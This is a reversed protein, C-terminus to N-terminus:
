CRSAHCSFYILQYEKALEHLFAKAAAVKNEDLNILPDDLVIFPKEQSYLADILAFRLSLDIANQYGRSYHEVDRLQGYEEFKVNFDTDLNLNDYDHNTIMRLYKQLGTKMPALFKTTLSENAAQLFKQASKVANLEMTLKQRENQLNVKEMRRADLELMENQLAEIKACLQTNRANCADIQSQLTKERNQLEHIDVTVAAENLNFNKAIKFQEVAQMEATLQTQLNALEIVTQKLAVLKDAATPENLSFRALYAALKDQEATLSATLAGTQQQNWAQQAQLNQYERLNSDVRNIASLYDTTAEYQRLFEVVHKPLPTETGRRPAVTLAVAGLVLAGGAVMLVVAVVTQVSLLLAGALVCVLALGFLEWRWWPTKGGRRQVNCCRLVDNYVAQVAAATPIKGGFYQELAQRRTRVYDANGNIQMANTKASINKELALYSDIETVSTQQGNLVSQCAQIQNQTATVKRNLEAFMEQGARKEQLKGYDQIQNRVQTQQALLDRRSANELEIQKQLDDIAQGHNELEHIHAEVDDLQTALKELAGTHQHNSLGVRKKDLRKLAAECNYDQTAGQIMHNLKQALSENFNSTLAKQPIYSSREFAEADLGFLEEGVNQTFDQCKKNTKADFLNFTDEAQKKGFFREIKYQKGQVAFVLNGGFNGGQWPQYKKRENEDLAKKTTVPLGYFMAKIFTAFTSKGWGNEAQLNNLGDTFNYDFNHLKGFNEIHCQILKM